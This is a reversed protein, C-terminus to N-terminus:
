TSYIHPESTVFPTNNTMVQLQQYGPIPGGRMLEGTKLKEDIVRNIIAEIDDISLTFRMAGDNGAVGIMIKGENKPDLVAVQSGPPVSPRIDTVRVPRNVVTTM